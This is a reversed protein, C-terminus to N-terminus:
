LQFIATLKEIINLISNLIHSLPGLESTMEKLNNIDSKNITKTLLISILFTFLFITGGIILKIWSSFSLQSLIAYTIVAATGSSLLIKTSSTWDVTVSYHKKIWHLAIILSPIGATLTTAILGIIGFRSILLLSLPFGIASTILTLKLNLKTEGQSNILNGLSLNGLASFLYSIALLALFLPANGYKEGFLTSIAPQALTIIAAAAPVVLLAAYKVSFQFVNRLTEKEKQPDLKSFAPFLTVTIPTAFFTILVAFNTAVSYNGIMLNTAYIAILFNYFQALFGSIIASISLPLGYKFMTKINEVIEPRDDNPKQLNKYLDLLILISLLGAILFAITSGLVAGFTGLGLIILFPMFAAKLCSQLILTISNLEMKENGIFASQATTILAGALITFSAIQILPKIDPRQFVNTALFGSLLFSLISLLFGSVIEFILGAILISKVNAPKSESKYQATYKIMATSIGWDQFISMLNPAILAITVIGYESPSLLRAVLIVSVASIITSVALGWFLNFGGKASVKAMEAAKSV